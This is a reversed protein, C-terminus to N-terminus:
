RNRVFPSSSYFLGDNKSKWARVDVMGENWQEGPPIMLLCCGKTKIKGQEKLIYPNDKAPYAIYILEGSYYGYDSSKGLSGYQTTLFGEYRNKTSNWIINIGFRNDSSTCEWEGTIVHHDFVNKGTLGSKLQIRIRKLWCSRIISIYRCVKLM